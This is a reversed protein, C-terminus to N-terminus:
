DVDDADIMTMMMGIRRMMRIREEEDDDDKIFTSLGCGILLTYPLQLHSADISASLLGGSSAYIERPPPPPERPPYM